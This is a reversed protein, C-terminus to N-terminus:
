TNIRFKRRRAEIIRRCVRCHRHGNWYYTNETNFMHGNICHTKVTHKAVFSEGRMTNERHTVPELHKPNVCKTNRCLHDLELNKPIAGIFYEYSWRHARYRKQRIGFLGYGDPRLCGTWEWCGTKSNKFILSKFRLFPDKVERDIRIIGLKSAQTKISNWLRSPLLKLLINHQARPYHKILINNENASWIKRGDELGLRKAKHYVSAVNRNLRRAIETAPIKGFLSTLITIEKDSWYKM